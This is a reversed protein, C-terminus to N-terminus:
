FFDKLCDELCVPEEDEWKIQPFYNKDIGQRWGNNNDWIGELKHPKSIYAHLGLVKDRALYEVGLLEMLVWMYNLEQQTFNKM